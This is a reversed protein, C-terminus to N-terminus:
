NAVQVMAPRVVKENRKYGKQYVASIVNEGLTEDEIHSVANHLNPDFAEGVEGVATIKLKTLSTHLQTQVMEVGKRLDEVSCAELQLARELNDAVPLIETVALSTADDYIAAKERETRKRFNDYEARLRLYRDNLAALDAKAKELEEKLKESEKKEKHRSKKEEAPKEQEGSEPTTEGAPNPEEAPKEPPTGPVEGGGTGTVKEEEAM